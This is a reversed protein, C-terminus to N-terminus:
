VYINDLVTMNSFVGSGYRHQEVTFRVLVGSLGDFSELFLADLNDEHVGVDSRHLGVRVVLARM